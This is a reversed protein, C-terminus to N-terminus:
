TAVLCLWPYCGSTALLYCSQEESCNVRPHGSNELTCDTVTSNSFLLLVLVSTAHIDLTTM